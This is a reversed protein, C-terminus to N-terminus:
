SNMSDLAVQAFYHVDRDSDKVYKMLLPMVFSKKKEATFKDKLEKMVKAVNLRVNAVSDDEVVQFLPIVRSDVMEEGMELAM